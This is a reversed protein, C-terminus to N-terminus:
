RQMEYPLQLIREFMELSHSRVRALLQTQEARELSRSCKSPRSTVTEFRASPGKPEFGELLVGARARNAGTRELESSVAREILGTQDISKISKLFAQIALNIVHNMCRIHNEKPHWKIGLKSKLTKSLETCMTGNNSASDTTICFLKECIDYETLVHFLSRALHEGTHHGTVHVFDLLAEHLNWM